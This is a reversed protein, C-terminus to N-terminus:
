SGDHLMVTVPLGQKYATEVVHNNTLIYGDSSIIFGTGSVSGSIIQGFVNTSTVETSIGVVQQCALEYIQTPDLLDGDRPNLKLSAMNSLPNETEVAKLAVSDLNAIGAEGISRIRSDIYRVGGYVMGGCLLLAVLCICIVSRLTKNKM